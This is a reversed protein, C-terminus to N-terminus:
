RQLGVHEHVFTACTTPEEFWPAHGAAVEHMTAGPIKAVSTRAQEPSLFPDDRGWCFLTPSDIRALEADSMVCEPRPHRFRDIAYMLSAVSRANRGHHSSWRLVDVLEGPMARAAAPSLGQRILSRYVFRPSPSALVAPGLGRVTLISLPMKVTVGPLAVAPDGMAVLSRIRGPRAAAHWLAYMGSLSHAVVAPALLGLADFLDDLLTVAHDRVRGVQYSVPDSLGHGPLEVLHVRYTDLEGVWPLWIAAALSVGHLLVLDPGSGVTLVRLRLGTSPLTVYSEDVTVGYRACLVSEAERIQKETAV